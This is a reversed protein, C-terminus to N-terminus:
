LHAVAFLVVDAAVSAVAVKLFGFVLVARPM